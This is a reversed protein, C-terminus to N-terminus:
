DPVACCNYILVPDRNAAVENLRGVPTVHPASLLLDPNEEAERAIQKMAAAFDELTEPTETETPEIMMAQPVILPFYITPPYFGFDM